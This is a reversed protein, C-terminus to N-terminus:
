LSVEKIRIGAVEAADLMGRDLSLLASKHKLACGIFYADYAYINLGEALEIAAELEVDSFRIPIKKYARVAKISQALTIRKRKFMASFANGVEWHLSSPAILDAEKTMEIMKKKHPENTIVAIIVSTDVVINM